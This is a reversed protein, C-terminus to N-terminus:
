AMEDGFAVVLLIGRVQQEDLSYFIEASFSRGFKPNPNAFLSELYTQSRNEAVNKFAEYDYPVYEWSSLYECNKDSLKVIDKLQPNTDLLTTFVRLVVNESKIEPLQKRSYLRLYIKSPKIIGDSVYTKPQFDGSTITIEKKAKKISELVALYKPHNPINFALLAKEYYEIAKEYQKASFARDGLEKMGQYKAYSTKETTNMM